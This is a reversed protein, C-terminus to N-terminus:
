AISMCLSRLLDFTVSKGVGVQLCHRSNWIQLLSLKNRDPNFPFHAPWSRPFPSTTKLISNFPQWNQKTPDPHCPRADLSCKSHNATLYHWQRHLRWQKCMITPSKCFSFKDILINQNTRPSVHISHRDNSSLQGHAANWIPQLPEFALDSNRWFAMVM